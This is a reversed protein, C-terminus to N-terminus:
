VGVEGERFVVAEDEAGLRAAQWFFEQARVPLAAERDRHRVRLHPAEVECRGDGYNEVLRQALAIVGAEDHELAVVVHCEADHLGLIQEVHVKGATRRVKTRLHTLRRDNRLRDGGQRLQLVARETQAAAIGTLGALLFAAFVLARM